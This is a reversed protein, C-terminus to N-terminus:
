NHFEGNTCIWQGPFIKNCELNPNIATFIAPEIKFLQQISFCSDGLRAGFAKNCQTTTAPPKREFFSADAMSVAILLAFLLILSKVM